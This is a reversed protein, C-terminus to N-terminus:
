FINLSLGVTFSTAATGEPGRGDKFMESLEQYYYLGFGGIGIRGQVGYRIRSLDFSEKSKFKKNDGNAEYKVKTHSDFLIGVKGGIGIKFSKRFDDKNFNFRLELPIDVYNAALKSNKAGGFGYLTDVGVMQTNGDNMFLTLNDNDFRYKELGVGLGPHFSFNSNGLRMEYMYYINVTKSGILSLDMSTPEDVLFNFGFEVVLSGPVNPSAQTKKQQNLSLVSTGINLSNKKDPKEINDDGGSALSSFSFLLIFIFPILKKM